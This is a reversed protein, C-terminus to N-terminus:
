KNNSLILSKEFEGVLDMHNFQSPERNFTHLLMKKRLDSCDYFLKVQNALCQAELLNIMTRDFEGNMLVVNKESILEPFHHLTLCPPASERYRQYLVLPTFYFSHNVFQGLFFQYGESSNGSSKEEQATRPLPYLFLPYQLGLDYIRNYVESPIVAYISSDKTQHFKKWIDAIEEPTHKLLLDVHVIDNLTKVKASTPESSTSRPGPDSNKSVNLDKELNDLSKKLTQQESSLEQHVPQPQSAKLKKIKEAYKSYYPNEQIAAQSSSSQKIKTEPAQVESINRQDVMRICFPLVARQRNIERRLV